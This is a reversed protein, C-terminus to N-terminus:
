STGPVLRVFCSTDLSRHCPPNSEAEPNMTYCSIAFIAALVRFYLTPHFFGFIAGNVCVVAILGLFQLTSLVSPPKAFSILM